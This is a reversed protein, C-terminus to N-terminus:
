SALAARDNNAIIIDAKNITENNASDDRDAVRYKNKRNMQNKFETILDSYKKVESQSHDATIIVYLPKNTYMKYFRITEALKEIAEDIETRVEPSHPGYEHSKTDTSTKWYVM